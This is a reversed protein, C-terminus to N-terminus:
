FNEQRQIWNEAWALSCKEIKKQHSPHLSGIEELFKQVSRKGSIILKFIDASKCVSSNIELQSLIQKLEELVIKFKQSIQVEIKNNPKILISGEADLFGRVYAKKIEKNSYFIWRPTKWGKGNPEIGCEYHLFYFSGQKLYISIWKGCNCTQSIRASVNARYVKAM